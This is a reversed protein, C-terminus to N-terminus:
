LQEALPSFSEANDLWGHLALLPPQGEEGWSLAAMKRGYVEFEREM